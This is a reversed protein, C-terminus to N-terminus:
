RGDGPSWIEKAECLVLGLSGQDKDSVRRHGKKKPVM